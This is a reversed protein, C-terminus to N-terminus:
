VETLGDLRGSSDGISEAELGLKHLMSLYLNSLPTGEAVRLHNGPRLNGNANGCLLIPLDKPTHLNSDGMGSGYMLMMHDLLTGDGDPTAALKDLYYGLLELFYCNIKAM